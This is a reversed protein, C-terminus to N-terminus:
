VPEGLEERALRTLLEPGPPPMRRGTRLFTQPEDGPLREAEARAEDQKRREHEDRAGTLERVRPVWARVDDRTVFRMDIITDGTLWPRPTVPADTHATVVIRGSFIRSESLRVEGGNAGTGVAPHHSDADRVVGYDDVLARAEPSVRDSLHPQPTVAASVLIRQARRLEGYRASLAVAQRWPEVRDAAIADDADNVGDLVDLVPTAAALLTGLETALLDLADDARERHLALLREQLRRELPGLVGAEAWATENSRRIKLVQPGVDAPVKEGALVAALAVDVVAEEPRVAGRAQRLRVAVESLATETEARGHMAARARALVPADTTAVESLKDSM